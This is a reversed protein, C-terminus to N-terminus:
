KSCKKTPIGWWAADKVKAFSPECPCWSYRMHDFNKYMTDHKWFDSSQSWSARMEATDKYISSRNWIDSQTVVCTCSSVFLALVFLLTLCVLKRM